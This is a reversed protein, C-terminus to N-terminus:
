LVHLLHYLSSFILSRVAPTNEREQERESAIRNRSSRTKRVPSRTPAFVLGGATYMQTMELVGEEMEPEMAEQYDPESAEAHDKEQDHSSPEDEEMVSEEKEDIVDSHIEEEKVPEQPVSSPGEEETCSEFLDQSKETEEASMVEDDAVDSAAITTDDAPMTVVGSTTCDASMAADPQVSTTDDVAPEAPEDVTLMESTPEPTHHDSTHHDPSPLPTHDPTLQPEAFFRTATTPEPTPKPTPSSPTPPATQHSTDLGDETPTAPPEEISMNIVDSGQNDVVEQSEEQIENDPEEEIVSIDKEKGQEAGSPGSDEREEELEREESIKTIRLGPTRCLGSGGRIDKLNPTLTLDSGPTQQLPRDAPLQAQVSRMAPTGPTGPAPENGCPSPTDARALTESLISQRDAPTPHPVPSPQHSSLQLRKAIPTATVLAPSPQHTSLQLHNAIPTDTVDFGVTRGASKKSSKRKGTSLM